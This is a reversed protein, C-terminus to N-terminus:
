KDPDNKHLGRRRRPNSYRRVESDLERLLDVPQIAEFQPHLLVEAKAANAFDSMPLNSNLRSNFEGFRIRM